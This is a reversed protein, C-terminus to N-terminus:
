FLRSYDFVANSTHSLRLFPRGKKWKDGCQSVEIFGCYPVEVEVDLTEQTLETKKGTLEWSCVAVTCGHAVFLVNGQSHANMAETSVVLSRSCYEAYTEKKGGLADISIIPQYELDINYGWTTLEEPTLWKPLNDGFFAWWVYLGPEIKIKLDNKGCGELFAHCTQICRLSPSCYVHSVNIQAKKFAESTLQAQFIGIKTLPSDKLYANYGGSRKPVTEPMNLDMQFYNGNKDFCHSTWDGFANDAREGYRM